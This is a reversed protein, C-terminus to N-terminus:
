IVTTMMINYFMPLWYQFEEPSAGQALLVLQSKDWYIIRAWSKRRLGGELFTFRTDLGMMKDTVIDEQSEIDIGPLAALGDNFGQRLLPTDAATVSYDLKVKEATFCTDIRDPYPSFVVRPHGGQPNSRHWDDPLWCAFGLEQDRFQQMGHYLPSDQTEPM